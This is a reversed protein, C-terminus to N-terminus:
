REPVKQILGRQQLTLERRIENDVSTAETRGKVGDLLRHYREKNVSGRAYWKGNNGQYVAM